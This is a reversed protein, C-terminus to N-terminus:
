FINLGFQDIKSRDIEAIKVELMVQRQPLPEVVISNLVQASYLGALVALEDSISASPVAGSLIVRAGDTEVNVQLGPFGRGITNRLTSVDPEVVVDVIYWPTFNLAVLLLSWVYVTILFGRSGDFRGKPFFGIFTYISAPIFCAVIETVTIWFTASVVDTSRTVAYVGVAWASLNLTLMMFAQHTAKRRHRALVIIGFIFCSVATFLVSVSPDISGM